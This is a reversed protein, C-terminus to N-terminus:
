MFVIETGNRINTYKIIESPNYEKGNNRNYLRENKRYVYYGDTIDNLSTGILYIIESIKKNVPLFVEYKKELLPIYLNVLLKNKM